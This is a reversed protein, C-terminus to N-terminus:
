FDVVSCSCGVEDETGIDAWDTDGTETSDTTEDPFVPTDDNDTLENDTEASDTDSIESDPDIESDSVIDSDETTESVELQVDKVSQVGSVITIDGTWDKFGDATVTLSYNDGTMNEFLYDGSDDSNVTFPDGTTKSTLVCQAGIIASSNEMATINGTLSGLEAAGEEVIGTSAWNEGAIITLNVVKTTFGTNSVTLTYNGTELDNFRFLGSSDSNVTIEASTATNKLVCAAGAIRNEAVNGLGTSDNFVFGKLLATGTASSEYIGTSAWNDGSLVTVSKSATTFGTKEITLTYDGPVVNTFNFLGTASSTVDYNNDTNSLNCDAGAIRNGDVNEGQTANYVFGKVNGPDESTGPDDLPSVGYYSCVAHYLAIAHEQRNSSDSILNFEATNSVFLGESLAAPMNTYKIVYYGAYKVGRDTRALHDLLENQIKGALIEGNGGTTYAYTETGHASEADASNLHTSVFINVGNDNAISVRNALEVAVDDTRTMIVTASDGTLMSVFRSDIDLVL